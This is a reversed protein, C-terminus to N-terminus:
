ERTIQLIVKEEDLSDKIAFAAVVGAVVAAAVWFYWKKWIQAGRGKRAEEGKKHARRSLDEDKLLEERAKIFAAHVLARVPSVLAQSTPSSEVPLTAVFSDGSFRGLNRSFWRLRVQGGESVAVLLFDVSLTKALARLPALEFPKGSARVSTLTKRLDEFPDEQEPVLSVPVVVSQGAPPVAQVFVRHGKLEVRVRHAGPGVHLTLPGKGAPHEDLFVEAGAPARVELTRRPVLPAAELPYADWTAQPVGDPRKDANLERLRAATARAAEARGLEHLCILLYTHAVLLHARGHAMPVHTDFLAIAQTFADAAAERELATFLRRGRAIAARALSLSEDHAFGALARRLAKGQVPVPLEVRAAQRSAERPRSPAAERAAPRAAASPRAEQTEAPSSALQEYLALLRASAAEDAPGANVIAFRPAAVARGSSMPLAVLIWLLVMTPRFTLMHSAKTM